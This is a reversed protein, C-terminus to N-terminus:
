NYELLGPIGNITISDPRVRCSCFFVEVGSDAADHFAEAFDPDIGANPVVIEICEAQMVFVIGARYGERVAKALERLHRTGRRTPADPFYGIGDIELTCGKVELLFKEEGREMYFDIRSDGYRYEPRVLDFDQKELWEKVAANPAQSDINFLGRDPKEVAIMDYETKRKSNPSRSLYVRNGYELLGPCRGTNKIHVEENDLEDTIVSATFRSIKTVFSAGSVDSYRM